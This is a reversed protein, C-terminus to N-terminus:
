QQLALLQQLAQTESLAQREAQEAQRQAEKAVKIAANADVFVNHNRKNWVVREM